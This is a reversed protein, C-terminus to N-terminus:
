YLCSLLPDMIFSLTCQGFRDTAELGGATITSRLRAALEEDYQVRYFGTQGVNIKVWDEKLDLFEKSGHTNATNNGNAGAGQTMPEESKKVEYPGKTVVAEPSSSRHHGSLISAKQRILESSKEKYSGVCYTLPLVWEGKGEEGNSLYQSQVCTIGCDSFCDSLLNVDVM